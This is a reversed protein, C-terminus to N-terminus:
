PQRGQPYLREAEQPTGRCKEVHIRRLEHAHRDQRDCTHFGGALAAIVVITVCIAILRELPDM